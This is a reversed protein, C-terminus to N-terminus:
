HTPTILKSKQGFRSGGFRGNSFLLGGLALRGGGVLVLAISLLLLLINPDFPGGQSPATLHVINFPKMMAILFSLLMLAILAAAFRTFLGLILMLGILIEGVPLAHLYVSGISQAFPPVNELQSQAFAKIGPGAIKNYGALAFYLGLPVRLLILAIDSKVTHIM